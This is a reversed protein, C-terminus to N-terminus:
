VIQTVEDGCQLSCAFELANREFDIGIELDGFEGVAGDLLATRRQQELLGFAARNRHQDVSEGAHAPHLDRQFHLGHVLNGRRIESNRSIRM